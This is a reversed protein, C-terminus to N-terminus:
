VQRAEESCALMKHIRSCQGWKDAVFGLGVALALGEGSAVRLGFAIAAASQGNELLADLAEGLAGHLEDAPQFVM